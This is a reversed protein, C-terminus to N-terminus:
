RNVGVTEIPLSVEVSWGDATPGALFSGGVSKARERMSILGFGARYGVDIMDGGSNAVVIECIGDTLIITVLVDAGVTHRSANTLAEQIIRYGALATTPGVENIAGDQELRVLLGANAFEDILGSVDTLNPSPPPPQGSAAEDQLMGVTRRIESLSQRGAAEAQELAKEAEDPDDRVLHRAGTIHLMVVSLSHGVLDHVDRAIRRREELAAQDSVLSRTHELEGVTESLRWVIEGAGWAAMTAFLWIPWAFNSFAGTIGFLVMLFTFVVISSRVWGRHSTSSAMAGVTCVAIFMSVEAESEVFNLITPAVLGAIYTFLAFSGRNAAWLLYLGVTPALFIWSVVQNQHVALAVIATVTVMMAIVARVIRRDVVWSQSDIRM